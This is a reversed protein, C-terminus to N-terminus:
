STKESDKVESEMQELVKDLNKLKDTMETILDEYKQKARASASTLLAMAVGFLVALTVSLLFSRLKRQM